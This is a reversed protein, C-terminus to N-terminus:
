WGCSATWTSSSRAVFARVTSDAVVAGYEDVLRRWVRRATHRRKRPVDRDAALWARAVEERPGLAPSAREPVKRAPPIASMLALRVARRHVGHRCSLERISLGEMRSDRRIREHLEVRSM